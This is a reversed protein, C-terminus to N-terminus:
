EILGVGRAFNKSFYLVVIPIFVWQLIPTLGIGLVMPMSDSYSWRSLVQTSAFEFLVTILLGTSIYVFFTRNSPENLWMINKAVLIASAYAIVAIIGDGLSAQTCMWVVQSHEADAMGEFFLIQWMEWVFNILFSFIFIIANIFILSRINM